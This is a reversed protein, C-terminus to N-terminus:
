EYKLTEYVAGLFEGNTLKGKSINCIGLKEIESLDGYLFSKEVAYRIAKEVRTATTNHKKAVDPYLRKTMLHLIQEDEAIMMLASKIYNFGLTSTSVGIDRLKKSIENETIM